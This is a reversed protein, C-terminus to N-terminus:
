QPSAQCAAYTTSQKIVEARGQAPDLGTQQWLKGDLMRQANQALHRNLIREAEIMEILESKRDGSLTVPHSLVNLHSVSDFERANADRMYGIYSYINAYTALRDRDFHTVSTDSIATTWANQNWRRSPVALVDGKQLGVTGQATVPTWNDGSALLKQQLSDLRHNICDNVMLREMTQWMNDYLESQIQATAFATKDRWHLYEVAQEAALAICVSIVVVGIETLLERWNHVPKPKHHIEM